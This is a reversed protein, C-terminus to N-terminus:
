RKTCKDYDAPRTKLLHVNDYQLNYLVCLEGATWSAGFEWIEKFHVWLLRVKQTTGNVFLCVTFVAEEGFTASTSTKSTKLQKQQPM